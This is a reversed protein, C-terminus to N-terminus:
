PGREEKERQWVGAGAPAAEKKGESGREVSASSFGDVAVLERKEGNQERGHRLELKEGKEV